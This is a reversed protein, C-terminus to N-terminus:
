VAGRPLARFTRSFKAEDERTATSKLEAGLRLRARFLLVKVHTRTFKLVQAVEGIEMDEAYRLWLADYQAEPLAIRAVRWLSEGVERQVLLARPDNGDAHEPLVEEVISRKQRRVHDICKHRAITFLWTMFSREPDFRGIGKYAAVFVDQTVEQADSLNRCRGSVFRHIRIEYRRM